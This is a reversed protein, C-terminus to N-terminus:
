LLHSDANLQIIEWNGRNGKFESVGCAVWPGMSRYNQIDQGSVHLYIVSIPMWHTVIMVREGPHGEAIRDFATTVRKLFVDSNEGSHKLAFKVLPLTIKPGSFDPEFLPMPKGELWGYGREELGPDPIPAQGVARGIIEATKYARGLPSSYITQVTQGRFHDATKEAAELGNETLPANTSGHIRHIRTYETEGHRILIISTPRGM